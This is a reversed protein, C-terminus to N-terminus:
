FLPVPIDGYKGMSKPIFVSLVKGSQVDLDVLLKPIQKISRTLIDRGESSPPCVPESFLLRYSTNNESVLNGHGAPNAFLRTDHFTDPNVTDSMIESIDWGNPMVYILQKVNNKFFTKVLDKTLENSEAINIMQSIEKEPIQVLAIAARNQEFIGYLNQKSHHRLLMGSGITLFEATLFILIIMVRKRTRSMSHFQHRDAHHSETIRPFFGGTRDMYDRYSDGYKSLCEQEEAHALYTYIFLMAVYTMWVIMRSWFLCMGLGFISWAAYQPHRIYKYIGFTVAGKGKFKAYYIQGFGILFVILGLTMMPFSSYLLIKIIISSTESFHPMITQVLWATKESSTLWKLPFEYVSYFFVAFPTSMYLMEFFIISYAFWASMEVTKKSHITKTM